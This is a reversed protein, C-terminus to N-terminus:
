KKFFGTLWSFFDLMLQEGFGADYICGFLDQPFDIEV